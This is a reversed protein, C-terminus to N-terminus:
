TGIFPKNHERAFQIARLAGEKSQYPSSPAAWLGDFQELTKQSEPTLLSPTPLWYIEITTSLQTASHKIAENTAPHTPFSPNFDGIIGIKITRSM